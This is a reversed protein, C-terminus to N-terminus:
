GAATSSCLPRSRVELLRRALAAAAAAERVCERLALWREAHAQSVHPCARLAEPARPRKAEANAKPPSMETRIHAIERVALVHVQDM